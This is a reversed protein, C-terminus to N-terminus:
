GLCRTVSGFVLMSVWFSAKLFTVGKFIPLKQYNDINSKQPIDIYKSQYWGVLGGFEGQFDLPLELDSM